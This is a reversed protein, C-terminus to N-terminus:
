SGCRTGSRTPCRTSTAGAYAIGVNNVLADVAGLARTAEAVLEEPAGPEALDAVVHSRRGPKAVPRRSASRTAARSSWAREKTPSCGRPRSGSGARRAPSSASASALARSGRRSAYLRHRRDEECSVALGLPVALAAPLTVGIRRQVVVPARCACASASSSASPGSSATYALSRRRARSVASITALAARGRPGPRAPAGRSRM